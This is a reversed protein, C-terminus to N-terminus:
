REQRVPPSEIKNTPKTNQTLQLLRATGLMTKDERVYMDFGETPVGLIASLDKANFKLKKKRM